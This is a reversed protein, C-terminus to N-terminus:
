GNLGILGYSGITGNAGDSENSKRKVLEISENIGNGWHGIISLQSSYSEHYKGKWERWLNRLHEWKVVNVVDDDNETIADTVDNGNTVM